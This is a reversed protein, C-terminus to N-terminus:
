GATLVSVKVLTKEMAAGVDLLVPGASSGGESETPVRRVTGEGSRFLKM